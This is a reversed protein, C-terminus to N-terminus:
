QASTIIYKGEENQNPLAGYSSYQAENVKWKKLKDDYLAKISIGHVVDKERIYDGKLRKFIIIGEVEMYPNGDKDITIKAAEKTFYTKLLNFKENGFLSPKYYDAQALNFKETTITFPEVSLKVSAEAYEKAFQVYLENAAHEDPKFIFHSGSGLTFYTPDYNLSKTEGWPFIGLLQVEKENQEDIPGFQASEPDGVKIGTKEGKFLIEAGKLEKSLDMRHGDLKFSVEVEAKDGTSVSVKDTMSTWKYSKTAEISYSGPLFPKQFDVLTVEIDNIKLKVDGDVDKLRILTENPLLVYDSSNDPKTIKYPIEGSLRMEKVIDSVDDNEVDLVEIVRDKIESYKQIFDKAADEAFPYSQMEEPMTTLFLKPDNTEMAKTVNEIVKERSNSSCGSILGVTLIMM